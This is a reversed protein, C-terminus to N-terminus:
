ITKIKGQQKLYNYASKWAERRTLEGCAVPTIIDVESGKIVGIHFFKTSGGLINGTHFSRAGKYVKKVEAEYNITEM